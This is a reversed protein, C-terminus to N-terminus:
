ADNAPPRWDKAYRPDDELGRVAFEVRGMIEIAL